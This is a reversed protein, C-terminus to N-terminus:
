YHHRVVRACAYICACATSVGIQDNYSHIMVTNTYSCVNVGANSLASIVQQEDSLHKTSEFARLCLSVFLCAGMCVLCLCLYEVNCYLVGHLSVDAEWDTFPLSAQSVPVTIVTPHLVGTALSSQGKSTARFDSKTSQPTRTHTRTHTLTTHPIPVFVFCFCILCLFVCLGRFLLCFLLCGRVHTWTATSSRCTRPPM